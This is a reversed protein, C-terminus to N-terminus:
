GNKMDEWAVLRKRMEPWHMELAALKDTHLMAEQYFDQLLYDFVGRSPNQMFSVFNGSLRLRLSKGAPAEDGETRSLWYTMPSVMKDFLPHELRSEGCPQLKACEVSNIKALGNVNTIKMEPHKRIWDEFCRLYTMFAPRTPHPQGDNGFVSSEWRIAAKTEGTLVRYKEQTEEPMGECHTKTGAFAFDFGLLYLTQFGMYRALECATGGVFPMKEMTEMGHAAALNPPWIWYIWNAPRLRGWQRAASGSVVFHRCMMNGRTAMEFCDRESDICVTITPRIGYKLIFPIATDVAIVFASKPIYKISQELTPGAGCIYAETRETCGPPRLLGIHNDSKGQHFNHAINSTWEERKAKLTLRYAREASFANFIDLGFQQTIKASIAIAPLTALLSIVFLDPQAFFLHKIKRHIVERGGGAWDGVIFHARGDRLVNGQKRADMAAMFVDAEPEIVLLRSTHHMRSLIIETLYGCGFGILVFLQNEPFKNNRLTEEAWEPPTTKLSDPVVHETIIHNKSIIPYDGAFRIVAPFPSESLHLCLRGAQCAAALLPKMNM